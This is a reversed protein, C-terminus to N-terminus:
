YIAHGRFGWRYGRLVRKLASCPRRRARGPHAKYAQATGLVQHVAFHHHTKQLLGPGLQDRVSFVGVDDHDIGARENGAGLLFRDVGDEFHRLVLARPPGPFQHDRAAQYFTKTIIDTLVDRFHIRDHSRSLQFSYECGSSDRGRPRNIRGEPNQLRAGFAIGARLLSTERALAPVAGDGVQGVIQVVFGRGAHQRSWTMGRVDLNGLAAIM